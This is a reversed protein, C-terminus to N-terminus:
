STDLGDAVILLKLKRRKISTAQLVDIIVMRGVGCYPCTSTGTQPDRPENPESSAELVMPEPMSKVGLLARCLALKNPRARNALFGYHRIRVFGSPLAHLLFRRIFEVPNLAMTRRARGHAYDKWRFRVKADELAILRQNSIAVRHTYRALYKLVQNPGGTPPKAYVVWKVRASAALVRHFETPDALPSLRGRFALKGQNFAGRVLALFKGRFMASLVRVPLFFRPKCAVWCSGDASIGGAPVVCHVHPHHLLNQGWTHLIALFGIEAGLHRPDAAIQQLTEAAARFLIRYVVRRNQLGIPRLAPPLTFVVHFYDVPLLEAQRAETWQAAATAQCKPCHRNRCSNYAIRQHGCRDCVEAHGGLAATRCAAVDHLARRQETSLTDSYRDLFAAGYKRFVEAVELRPQNMTTARWSPSRATGISEIDGGCCGALPAHLDRHKQPQSARAVDPHWDTPKAAKWYERLLALLRPSLMVNRDRRGKGQRVRIVMRQSDIDEIRLDVVESLRLGAAYATMLIARHKVSLIAAFFRATEDLSLVTPLTKPQKPCRVRVMVGERNPTVEYLFKLAAVTQNYVSWSVKKKQVLHLLYARVEERGLTAPSRGFYRAFGAVRMVYVEITRLSLNRLKMEEIMRQRLPTM